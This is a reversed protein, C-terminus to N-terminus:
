RELREVMKRGAPTINVLISRRSEPDEGKRVLGAKEASAVARSVAPKPVGLVAAIGRVTQPEIACLAVTLKMRWGHEGGERVFALMKTAFPGLGEPVAGNVKKVGSM